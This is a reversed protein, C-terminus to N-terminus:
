RGTEVGEMEEEGRGKGGRGEGERREGGGQAPNVWSLADHCSM